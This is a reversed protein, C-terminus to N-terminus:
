IDIGGNRETSAEIIESVMKHLDLVFFDLEEKAVFINHTESGIEIEKKALSISGGARVSGKKNVPLIM